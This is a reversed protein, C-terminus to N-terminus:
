QPFPRLSDIRGDADLEFRWRVPKDGYTVHYVREWRGEARRDDVLLIATPRGLARTYPPLFNRVQPLFGSRANDSFPVEPIEGVTLAALLDHIRRTLATDADAIPRPTAQDRDPVIIDAVGQALYPYMRAQNALVIITLKEEPFRLIDALAPGGSHGVTRRGRYTGLAWGLGFGEGGAANAAPQWMRDRHSPTLLADGDLAAAWKALDAVSALLGGATYAGPAFRFWFSRQTEGEVSYLQARQPVVDATRIPGEDATHDFRTHAMALPELLRDRLLQEFPMGSAQELIHQLVAYGGIGYSSRTGPEFVLPLTMLHRTADAASRDLTEGVDDTIGSAHTALHRLTIANWAAPADPLYTRIPADLALTGDQVLLMLLTGALPKTASALQFATAPTAAADLELNATGWSGLLETKGDRVVAVALAPIHNLRM